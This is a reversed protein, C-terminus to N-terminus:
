RGASIAEVTARVAPLDVLDDLPVPLAISWNPRQEGMTGPLNPRRELRLADELTVSVLGAPSAGLARHVALAVHELSADTGVGAAAALRARLIALGDPDPTVSSAAQDDLDAGSWTGAITPLDHTTVGGISRVSYRSPPLREFYTLRTSFLRRRALVRRAGAQLTGLDEGIVIAGARESEIALIELLEDTPQRVYAGDAPGFRSPIWWLRFLGIVHDIRLGGAHRLQARITEIFPRYGAEALRRPVFPPMGWDQGDRNFRDPPAGISAGAALSDQWEWADFGGPDFGVPVDAFRRLASSASGLQLDFCWQVWAHFAVRVADDRAVRRVAALDPHRYPEPWSRWGPGLRDSLTAFVAWRELSAGRETRWAKFGARDFAGREWTRELATRKLAWVRPRDILPGANLARAASALEDLADAGPLEDIALLIPNGFRRTSPFYPSPEPNPGPNPAVVPSVIAFGAGTGAAWAAFARLDGLDGIGWSRRSRTTPLQMTWGWERLGAPMWCRGPGTILLQDLGDDRVLRHYGYPADPPVAAHRGAPTGDELILEGAVPLAAGRPAVLVPDLDDAAPLPELAALV